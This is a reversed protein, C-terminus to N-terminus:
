AIREFWEWHLRYAVLVFLEQDWGMSKRSSPLRQTGLKQIADSRLCSIWDFEALEVEERIRVSTLMERDGALV